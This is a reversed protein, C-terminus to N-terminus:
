IIVNSLIESQVSYLFTIKKRTKILSHSNLLIVLNSTSLILINCKRQIEFRFHTLNHKKQAEAYDEDSCNIVIACYDM